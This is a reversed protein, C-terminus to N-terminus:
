RMQEKAWAADERLTKLTRQPLLGRAAMDHRGKLVLGLGALLLAGGVALAAAWAPLM